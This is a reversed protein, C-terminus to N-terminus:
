GGTKFYLIVSLLHRELLCWLIPHNITLSPFFSDVHEIIIVVFFIDRDDKGCVRDMLLFFYAVPIHPNWGVM